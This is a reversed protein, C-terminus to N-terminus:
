FAEVGTEGDRYDEDPTEEPVEAPEFSVGNGAPIPIQAVKMKPPEPASPEKTEPVAVDTGVGLLSLVVQLQKENVPLTVQRDGYTLLLCKPLEEMSELDIGGELIKSILINM